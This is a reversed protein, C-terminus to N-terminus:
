HRSEEPLYNKYLTNTADIMLQVASPPWEGIRKAPNGSVVSFPPM